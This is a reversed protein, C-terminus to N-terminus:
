DVIAPEQPKVNILIDVVQIYYQDGCGRQVVPNNGDGTVIRMTYLGGDMDEPITVMATENPLDSGSYYLREGQPGTTAPSPVDLQGDKNMDLFVGLYHSTWSSGCNSYWYPGQTFVELQEGAEVEIVIDRKDLLVQCDTNGGTTNSVITQGKVRLTGWREVDSTSVECLDPPMQQATSEYTGTLLLIGFLFAFLNKLKM